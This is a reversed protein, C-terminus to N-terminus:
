FVKKGAGLVDNLADRFHPTSEAIEKGVQEAYEEYSKRIEDRFLEKLTSNRQGEAHRERHYVVIDSILARALRRAKQHPDSSLFPNIPRRVATGSPHPAPPRPILEARAPPAPALAPVPTPAVTPIASSRVAAPAPTARPVPPATPTGRAALGPLSPAPPTVAANRTRTALVADPAGSQSPLASTPTSVPSGGIGIVGQCVSCRARVGILPVKAPDIRFVSRCGPCSVNM